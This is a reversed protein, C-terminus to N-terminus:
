FPIDDDAERDDFGGEPQDGVFGRQQSQQPRQPQGQFPPRQTYGSQTQPQRQAPPRQSYRSQDRGGLLQVTNANIEEKSRNQGNQDKWRNQWLEGDVAVQKGKTLYQALVEGQRGWLVIDFFNAEETWQDGVKKRRNVAISFKCVAVGSQTYKVEADRTLRGVLIARNLDQM